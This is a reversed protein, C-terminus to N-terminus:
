DQEGLSLARLKKAAASLYYYRKNQLQQPAQDNCIVQDWSHEVLSELGNAELEEPSLWFCFTRDNTTKPEPDIVLLRSNELLGNRQLAHLLLSNACGM